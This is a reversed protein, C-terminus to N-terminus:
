GGGSAIVGCITVEPAVLYHRPLVAYLWLPVLYELLGSLPPQRRQLLLVGGGQAGVESGKQCPPSGVKPIPVIACVASQPSVKRYPPQMDPKRQLHQEFIEM